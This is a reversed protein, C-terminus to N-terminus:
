KYVYYKLTFHGSCYLIILNYAERTILLIVLLSRIKSSDLLITLKSPKVGHHIKKANSEPLKKLQFRVNCTFYQLLTNNFFQSIVLFIM